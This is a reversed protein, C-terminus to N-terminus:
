RAPLASRLWEVVAASASPSVVRELSAYEAVQGTTGATLVHNVGALVVKKTHTVPVRRARAAADLLDANSPLTETDLAGHLILVPVRVRELAKAPDFLLWSRFWPTDAQRRVDDPIGEWGGGSITADNVRGQLAVRASREDDPIPLRALARAQEDLVVDRGSKGAMAILAVAKVRNERGAALLAIPGSEGYGVLAVRDADVDRRRRLWAVVAITDAAYEDLRARETRGGSQGSGRADYRVALYGAAALAGAIQGFVPVNSTLRDRGPVGPGAVLIAAPPREVGAPRTLTGALNFGNAPIFVDEDGPNRGHDERTMVSTLDDRLVMVSSVPLVLRALRGRGDVWVEIGFPGRPTQLTVAFERIEMPGEPTVLRRPTIRDVTASAGGEPARYVAVTAGTTAGALRAALAEYAGFFNDPLVVAGASVPQTNASRQGNQVLENAATAPGFTTTLTVPQDNITAEIELRDPQWDKDYSLEFRTTVLNFPAALRGFSSIRWGAGSPTVSVTQSGVREGKLLVVFTATDAAPGQRGAPVAGLGILVSLHCILRGIARM